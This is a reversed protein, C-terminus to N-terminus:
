NKLKIKKVKVEKVEVEFPSTDQSTMETNKCGNPLGDKAQGTSTTKGFLKLLKMLINKM